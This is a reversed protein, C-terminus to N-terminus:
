LHNHTEMHMRPVSGLDEVLAALAILCQIM